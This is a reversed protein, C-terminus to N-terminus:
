LGALAERAAREGSRVAGDMYGNWYTSTETGAWHVRGTPPRLASGYGVLSGPELIGVPCGRTWRERTWLGEFFDTPSLARPGFYDAFNRLVATKRAAESRGMWERATDGGLFAFIIGPSGEPPTNDFVLNAPGTDSIVFGSMGADRWFPRDYVVECKLLAGMPVRQHLQDRLDPLQPEFDIRGALTPALAVVVRKGRFSMGDAYVTAGTRDQVIRRVPRRLHVRRGLDRAMRTAIIQSGGVIRSEQAGGRTSFNRDFTGPNRENGSAATYFLAFLLSVDRPEAGWIGRTAIAALARFRETTTNAKLWTELTQGDWEAARDATWPREVPVHTAMDNLSTVVNALDPLIVPDMPATGSADTDEWTVRGGERVYLNKGTTWTPFIQAGMEKALALVRDQTPGVYEGGVESIRGNPLRHNLIRGGVRDRAEVVLVSHGAQV